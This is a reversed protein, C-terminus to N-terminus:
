PVLAIGELSTKEPFGFMLNFAQVAQGSAGKTLNDIASLIIIRGTRADVVLGIQITNTGRVDRTQPLVGEPLIKVFPEDAYYKKYLAALEATSVKKTPVCYITSLIGRDMPLLHATFSVRIEEGALFTLGQEIEPTHRHKGVNYARFNEHEVKANAGAGSVGSKSDCIISDPRVMKKALLPALALIISTPYCGPAAVLSASGIEKRFFEPLGYVAEKLLEKQSHAGYWKEYVCSDKLRFDASLDIVKVGEKRFAAAIEMAEHHPLCLFVAKVTKAIHPVDLEEFTLDLQRAFQPFIKDVREGEHQRSTVVAISVQPHHALIRLLELGTLGNAGIVAIPIKSFAM